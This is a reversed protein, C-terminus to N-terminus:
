GLVFRADVAVAGNTSVILPNVDIESFDEAHTMLLGDEGGIKLLADIIAERSAPARGRTGKLLVAGKLEALMQEADNRTIPCIGFAVDALVEVFIGGLGVMIMPGFQPDRMGGIVIEHGTPAMEEILYGEVHASSIQRSASMTAIAQSVEAPTALNIQVGGSDSKHLIDPSMVKVVVPFKLGNTANMEEDASKVTVSQPVAVGFRALLRKGTAEDLARRGQARALAIEQLLDTM